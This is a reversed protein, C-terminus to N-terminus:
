AQRFPRAQGRRYRPFPVFRNPLGFSKGSHGAGVGYVAFDATGSRFLDDFFRQGYCGGRDDNLSPELPLESICQLL